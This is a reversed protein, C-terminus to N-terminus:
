LELGGPEPATHSSISRAHKILNPAEIPCVCRAVDGESLITLSWIEM